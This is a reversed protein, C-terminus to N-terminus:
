EAGKDKAEQGESEPKRNESDADEAPTEGSAAGLLNAGLAAASAVTAAVAEAALTAAGVAAVVPAAAVTAATSSLAAATGTSEEIAAAVGLPGHQQPTEAPKPTASATQPVGPEPMM